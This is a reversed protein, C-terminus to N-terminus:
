LHHHVPTRHAAGGADTRLHEVGDPRSEAPVADDGGRRQAEDGRGVPHEGARDGAPIRRVQQADLALHVGVVEGAM